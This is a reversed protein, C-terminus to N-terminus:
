YPNPILPFLFLWYIRYTGYITLVAYGPITAGPYGKYQPSFFFSPQYKDVSLQPYNALLNVRNTFLICLLFFTQVLQPYLTSKVSLTGLISGLSSSTIGLLPCKDVSIIPNDVSFFANNLSYLPCYVGINAKEPTASSTILWYYAYLSPFLVTGNPFIVNKSTLMIGELLSWNNHDQEARSPFPNIIM